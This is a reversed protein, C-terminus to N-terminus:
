VAATGVILPTSSDVFRSDSSHAPAGGSTSNADVSFPDEDDAEQLSSPSGKKKRM